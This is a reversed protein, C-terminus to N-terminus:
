ERNHDQTTSDAPNVSPLGDLYADLCQQLVILSAPM